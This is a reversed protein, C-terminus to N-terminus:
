QIRRHQGPPLLVIGRSQLSGGIQPNVALAKNISEMAKEYQESEIFQTAAFLHAAPMNPNVELVAKFQEEAKEVDTGSLNRAYELLAEPMRPDTKLAEKYNEIADTEKYKRTLLEGWAVWAEANQPDAKVATRYVDGADLFQESSTWRAPSM